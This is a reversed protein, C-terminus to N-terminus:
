KKGHSMRSSLLDIFEDSLMNTIPIYNWLNMKNLYYITKEPNYRYANNLKKALTKRETMEIIKPNRSIFEVIQNDISFDLKCALYISRIMRNNIGYPETPRFTIEPPVLTKIIKKDCDQFGRKTPDIIDKMNFDLLLSNCGFDRSFTEKELNTLKRNLTNSLYKEVKSDIFNSSFDIKINKFNISSHGDIKIERIINYKTKLVKYVNLSLDKISEDGTTIDIDSIKNIKNLYKDRPLGGCLYPKSTDYKQHVTDILQLISSLKM